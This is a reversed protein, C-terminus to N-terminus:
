RAKEAIEAEVFDRESANTGVARASSSAPALALCRTVSDDVVRGAGDLFGDDVGGGTERWCGPRVRRRRM